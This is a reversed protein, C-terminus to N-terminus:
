RLAESLISSLDSSIKSLPMASLKTYFWDLVSTRMGSLFKFCTAESKYSMLSPSENRNCFALQFFVVEM